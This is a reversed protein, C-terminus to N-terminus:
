APAPAAAEKAAAEKAAAAARKEEGWRAIAEPTPKPAASYQVIVVSMNDRSARRLGEDLLEEALENLTPCGRAVAGKVWDGVEENSFVDWIGDCAIILYQDLSSRVQVHMDPEPSVMQCEPPLTHVQKYTFDGLARSVALEGNVRKQSVMGGAAMIRKEEGENYPKHDWSLPVVGDSRVLVARSDGCNAAVFHTPTVVVAIATSGSPDGKRVVELQRLRKDLSLFVLPLAECLSGATQSQKFTDNSTLTDVLLGASEKSIVSGGHGDFVAFLALSPYSPLAPIVCHADEMTV